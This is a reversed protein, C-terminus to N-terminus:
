GSSRLRAELANHLELLGTVEIDPRVPWGKEVPAVILTALPKVDEIASYNGKTLVPSRSAKCEVAFTKENLKLVLDLEAGGSTRYFSYDAAPWRAKLHMLVVQEWVSGLAPHGALQDFTSLGLLANTIGPDNIYVKPAKVLRKGLNSFMPRVVEIMFTGELLDMYNRITVNSVGLSNGLASYNVTQGNHHALMQWLRRMVVPHFGSYQMLDREIFSTIFDNRWELSVMDDSALVSRPFGGRTLYNELLVHSNIENFMFPSLRKFSIRGALSESSQKLLERSSSGLVLFHSNGGWEDVLSRIFPFIEPKRQIEDICVLKGKQSGLYWETNDLKQLDSPRELDLYTTNERERILHKVLTSKGCQRPGIVAIVPYHGISQLVQSEIDRSIYLM